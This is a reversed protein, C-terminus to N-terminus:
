NDELLATLEEMEALATQLREMIEAAIIEPEPLNDGSQLSEDRLWSIDLNDGRKAIEERTFCRWRGSEGSDVRVSLSNPDDGYCEEFDKFHIASLYASIRSSYPISFLAGNLM